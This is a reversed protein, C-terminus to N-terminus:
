NYWFSVAVAQGQFGETKAVEAADASHSDATPRSHWPTTEKKAREAEARDEAQWKKVMNSCTRRLSADLAHSQALAAALEEVRSNQIKVEVV